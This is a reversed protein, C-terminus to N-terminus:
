STRRQDFRYVHRQSDLLVECEFLQVKCNVQRAVGVDFDAQVIFSLAHVLASVDIQSARFAIVM